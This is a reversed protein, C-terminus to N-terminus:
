ENHRHILHTNSFSVFSAFRGAVPSLQLLFEKPTPNVVITHSHRPNIFAMYPYSPLACRRSENSCDLFNTLSKRKKRGLKTSGFRNREIDHRLHIHIFPRFCILIEHEPLANPILHRRVFVSHQLRLQFIELGTQNYKATRLATQIDRLLIRFLFDTRLIHTSYLSQRVTITFPLVWSLCLLIATTPLLPQFSGCLCIISKKYFLLARTEFAVSNPTFLSYPTSFLFFILFSHSHHILLVPFNTQTPISIAPLVLHVPGRILM